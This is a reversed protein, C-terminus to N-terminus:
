EDAEKSTQYGESEKNSEKEEEVEEDEEEEEQIPNGKLIFESHDVEKHHSDCLLFDSVDLEADIFSQHVGSIEDKQFCESLHSEKEEELIYHIAWSKIKCVTWWEKM